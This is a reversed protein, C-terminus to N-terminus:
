ETEKRINEKGQLSDQAAAAVSYTCSVPFSINHSDRLGRNEGMGVVGQANATVTFTHSM